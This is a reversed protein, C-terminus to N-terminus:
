VGSLEQALREGIWVVEHVMELMTAETFTEPAVALLVLDDDMLAVRGYRLDAALRLMKELKEVAKEGRY